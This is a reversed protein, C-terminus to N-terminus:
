FSCMNTQCAYSSLGSINHSVAPHALSSNWASIASPCTWQQVCSLSLSLRRTRTLYTLSFDQLSFSIINFPSLFLYVLLVVVKWFHQKRSYQLDRWMLCCLWNSKIYRSHLSFLFLFCGFDPTLFYCLFGQSITGERQTQRETKAEAFLVCWLLIWLKYVSLIRKICTNIVQSDQRLATESPVFHHKATVSRGTEHGHWPPSNPLKHSALVTASTLETWSSHSFSNELKLDRFTKHHVCAEVTPV